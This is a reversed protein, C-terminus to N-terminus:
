SACAFVNAIPVLERGFLQGLPFSGLRLFLYFHRVFILAALLVLTALTALLFGTLLVLTVLLFGALLAAALLAALLALVLLLGALLTTTLTTLAAWLVRVALAGARSHVTGPKPRPKHWRLLWLHPDAAIAFIAVVIVSRRRPLEVRKSTCNYCSFAFRRATHDHPAQPGRILRDVRIYLFRAALRTAATINYPL